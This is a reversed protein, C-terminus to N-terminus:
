YNIKYCQMNNIYAILLLKKLMQVTEVNWNIRDNVHWENIELCKTIKIKGDM